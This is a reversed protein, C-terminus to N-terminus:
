KLTSLYFFKTEPIGQGDPQYGVFVTEIFKETRYLM